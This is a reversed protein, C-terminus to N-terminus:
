GNLIENESIFNWSTRYSSKCNSKDNIISSQCFSNQIYVLRHFESIVTGLM